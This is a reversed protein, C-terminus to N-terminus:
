SPPQDGLRKPSPPSVPDGTDGDHDTSEESEDWRRTRPRSGAGDGRLMSRISQPAARRLGVARDGDMEAPQRSPAPTGRLLGVGLVDDPGAGPGSRLNSEGQQLGDTRTVKDRQLPKNEARDIGRQRATAKFLGVRSSDAAMAIQAVQYYALACDEPGYPCSESGYPNITACHEVRWAKTFASFPYKPHQKYLRKHVQKRTFEHGFICPWKSNNM